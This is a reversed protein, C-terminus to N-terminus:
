WSMAVLFRYGGDFEAQGRMGGYQEQWVETKLNEQLRNVCRDVVDATVNALPSLHLLEIIRDIIRPDARRTAM